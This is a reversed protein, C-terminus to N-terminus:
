DSSQHDNASISINHQWRQLAAQYDAPTNVNQLFLLDPDLPTLQHSEVILPQISHLLKQLSRTGGAFQEEVLSLVSTRYVAVLPNLLESHRVVAASRDSLLLRAHLDRIVAPCVFPCDCATVWVTARSWEAQSLLQQLCRLGTLLGGLPGQEPFADTVVAVDPPLPPLTQDAAAVVVLPRAASATLRCVRQLLRETGFFLQAKDQGM